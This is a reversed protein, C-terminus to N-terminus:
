PHPSWGPPTEAGDGALENGVEFMGGDGLIGGGVRPSWRVGSEFTAALDPGLFDAVNDVDPQQVGFSALGAGTFSVRREAGATGSM